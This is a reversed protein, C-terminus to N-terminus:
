PKEFGFSPEPEKARVFLPAADAIRRRAIKVYKPEIEIGIFRRGTQVCAVGTTGSGCYPDIVLADAPVGCVDMCWRMLEIPKQTPHVRAARDASVAGGHQLRKIKFKARDNCWALEFPATHMKDAEENCRKDWCFWGGRPLLEAFNNGGWIVTTPAIGLIPRPDFPKDDGYIKQGSFRAGQMTGSDFGIGYPPDCITADVCGPPLSKLVELADGLIVQHPITLDITM